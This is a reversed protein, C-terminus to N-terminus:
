VLQKEDTWPSNKIGAVGYGIPEKGRFCCIICIFGTGGMTNQYPNELGKDAEDYPQTLEFCVGQIALKDNEDLISRVNSNVLYRM